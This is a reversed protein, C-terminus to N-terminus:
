NRQLDGLARGILQVLLLHHMLLLLNLLLHLLLLLMLLMHLLMLELLILCRMILSIGRLFLYYCWTLPLCSRSSRVLMLLHWPCVAGCVPMHLALIFPSSSPVMTSTCLLPLLSLIRSSSSKNVFNFGKAFSNTGGESASALVVAEDSAKWLRLLGPLYPEM